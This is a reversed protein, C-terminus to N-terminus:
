ETMYALITKVDEDTLMARVRMHRIITGMMRPPFKHPTQHCRGCNTRFHEEGEVRMADREQEVSRVIESKSPLASAPTGGENAAGFTFLAFLLLTSTIVWRSM